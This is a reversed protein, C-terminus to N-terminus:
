ALCATATSYLTVNIVSIYDIAWHRGPGDYNFCQRTPAQSQLKNSPSQVIRFSTLPEGPNRATSIWPCTRLAYDQIKYGVGATNSDHTLLTPSPQSGKSHLKRWLYLEIHEEREGISKTAVTDGNQNLCDICCPVFRYQRVCLLLLGSVNSPCFHLHHVVANAYM